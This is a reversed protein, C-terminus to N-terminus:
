RIAQVHTASQLVCIVPHAGTELSKLISALRGNRVPGIVAVDFTGLAAGHFLETSMVTFGPVIRETQWRALVDRAFAADDAIILSRFLTTYPFLTSSPPPRILSLFA